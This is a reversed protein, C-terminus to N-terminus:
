FFSNHILPPLCRSPHPPPPSSEHFSPLMDPLEAGHCLSNYISLPPFYDPPEAQPCLLPRNIPKFFRSWLRLPPPVIALPPAYSTHVLPRRPTAGHGLGTAGTSYLTEGQSKRCKAPSSAAKGMEAMIYGAVPPPPNVVETTTCAAGSKAM